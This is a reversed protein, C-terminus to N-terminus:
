IIHPMANHSEPEKLGMGRCPSGVNRRTGKSLLLTGHYFIVVAEPVGTRDLPQPVTVHPMM